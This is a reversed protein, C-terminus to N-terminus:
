KKILRQFAYLLLRYASNSLNQKKEQFKVSKKIKEDVELNNPPNYNANMFKVVKKFTDFAKEKDHFLFFEEYATFIVENFELSFRDVDTYNKSM